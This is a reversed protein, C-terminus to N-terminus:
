RVDYSCLIQYPTSLDSESTRMSCSFVFRHAIAAYVAIAKATKHEITSMYEAGRHAM